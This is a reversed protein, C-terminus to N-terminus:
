MSAETRVNRTLRQSPHMNKQNFIEIQANPYRARANLHFAAGEHLTHKFKAVGCIFPEYEPIRPDPERLDLARIRPDEPGAGEFLSEYEPIRPDPERM